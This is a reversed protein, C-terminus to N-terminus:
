EEVKESNESGEEKRSQKKEKKELDIRRFTQWRLFEPRVRFYSELVTIDLGEGRFYVITYDAENYKKLPYATKRIGWRDVNDVHAGLKEKLYDVVGQAIKEREEEAIDPKIIFMTEYIRM